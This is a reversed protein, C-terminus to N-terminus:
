LCIIKPIDSSRDLIVISGALKNTKKITQKQGQLISHFLQVFTTLIVDEEWSETELLAKDVPNM